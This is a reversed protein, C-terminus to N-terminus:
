KALVAYQKSIGSEHMSIFYYIMCINNNQVLRSIGKVRVESGQIQIPYPPNALFFIALVTTGRARAQKTHRLISPIDNYLFIMIIEYLDIEHPAALPKQIHNHNPTFNFLTEIPKKENLFVNKNSLTENINM